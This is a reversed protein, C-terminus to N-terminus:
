VNKFHFKGEVSMEPDLIDSSQNIEDINEHHELTLAPLGYITVNSKVVMTTTVHYVYKNAMQSFNQHKRHAQDSEHYATNCLLDDVINDLFDLRLDM